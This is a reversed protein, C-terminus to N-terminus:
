NTKICKVAKLARDLRKQEVKLEPVSYVALTVTPDGGRRLKWLQSSLGMSEFQGNFIFNQIRSLTIGRPVKPTNRLQDTM